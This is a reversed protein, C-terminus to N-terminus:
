KMRREEYEIAPPMVMGGYSNTDLRICIERFMTNPNVNPSIQYTDDSAALTTDLLTTPTAAINTRGYARVRLTGSTPLNCNIYVMRLYKQYFPNGLDNFPFVITGAIAKYSNPNIYKPTNTTDTFLCKGDPNGVTFFKRATADVMWRGNLTDYIYAKSQTVNQCIVWRLTRYYGLTWTDTTTQWEAFLPISLNELSEGTFRFLGDYTLIYIIGDFNQADRVRSFGVVIPDFQASTIGDQDISRKIWISNDKIVILGGRLDFMFRIAENSSGVNVYNVDYGTSPDAVTSYRIQNYGGTSSDLHGGILVRNEHVCVSTGNTITTDSPFIYNYSKAM